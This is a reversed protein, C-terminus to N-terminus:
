CVTAKCFDYSAIPGIKSGGQKWTTWPGSGSDISRDGVNWFFLDTPFDLSRFHRHDGYFHAALCDEGRDTQGLM